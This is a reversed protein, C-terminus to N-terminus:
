QVLMEVHAHSLTVSDRNFTIDLLLDCAVIEKKNGEKEQLPSMWYQQQVTKNHLIEISKCAEYVRVFHHRPGTLAENQATIKWKNKNKSFGRTM